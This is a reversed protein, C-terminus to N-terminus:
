APTSRPRAERCTRSSCDAPTSRRRRASDLRAQRRRTAAAFELGYWELAPAYDIEDTTELATKFWPGLDIGAVESATQRFQEPTFGRAGSYRSFALRMVDDLSKADNTAARIRADLM